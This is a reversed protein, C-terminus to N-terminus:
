CGEGAATYKGPGYRYADPDSIAHVPIFPGDDPGTVSM